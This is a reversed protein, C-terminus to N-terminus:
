KFQAKRKELFASVGEEMDEHTFTLSFLNAEMQIADLWAMETGRDIAEKAQSLAFSPGTALRKALDNVASDLDETEVVKNVLGIKFARKSDISDGLFIMEKAITKGVLRPLRQTGGAGPIIGLTIEPQGFLAINSAIRLDCAMALECGGGLCFGNVAAITPIPLLEIENLVKQLVLSFLKIESATKGKFETIDAGAIFARGSGKFVLVRANDDKVKELAQELERVTENNLANLAKERTFTITVIGEDTREYLLNNFM